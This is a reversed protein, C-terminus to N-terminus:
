GFDVGGRESTRGNRIYKATLITWKFYYGSQEGCEYMHRREAPVGKKFGDLLTASHNGGSDPFSNM